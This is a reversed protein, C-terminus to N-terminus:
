GADLLFRTAGTGMFFTILAMYVIRGVHHMTEFVLNLMTQIYGSATILAAVYWSAVSIIM